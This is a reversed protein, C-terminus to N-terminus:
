RSGMPALQASTYPALNGLAEYPWEGNYYRRWEEIKERADGLSLFWNKNLCEARLRANFAEIPANDTPKDPRSFDFEVGNLYPWQDLTKSIFEPGNDLSITRSKWGQLALQGLTEMVQLAMKQNGCLM